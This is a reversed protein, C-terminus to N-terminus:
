ARGGSLKTLMARDAMRRRQPLAAAVIIATLGGVVLSIVWIWGGDYGMHFIWLCLQSTVGAGIASVAALLLGGHTESGRIVVRVLFGIAAGILFIFLLEM